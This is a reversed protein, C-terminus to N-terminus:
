TATDDHHEESLVDDATQTTARVLTCVEEHGAEAANLTPYRDCYLDLDAKAEHGETAFIMTEFVLPTHSGDMSFGMDLGIWVTSIWYPGITTEKVRKYAMLAEDTKFSMMLANYEPWSLPKGLKDYGM